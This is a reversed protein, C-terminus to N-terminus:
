KEQLDSGSCIKQPCIYTPNLTAMTNNQNHKRLKQRIQNSIKVEKLRIYENSFRSQFNVMWMKSLLRIEGLKKM